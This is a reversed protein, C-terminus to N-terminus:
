QNILGLRPMPINIIHAAHSMILQSVPLHRHAIKVTSQLQRGILELHEIIHAIRENFATLLQLFGQRHDLRRDRCLGLRAIDDVAQSPYLISQAIIM